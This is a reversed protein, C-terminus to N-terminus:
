AHPKGAKYAVADLEILVQSNDETVRPLEAVQVCARAPRPNSFYSEYVENVLAFDGINKLYITTKVIDDLTLDAELLSTKLNVFLLHTQETVSAPAHKTISDVGLHGSIYYTDGAKFVPSYPGFTVSQKM